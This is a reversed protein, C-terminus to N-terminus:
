PRALQLKLFPYPFDFAGGSVFASGRLENGVLNLPISIVHAGDESQSSVRGTMKGRLIYDTKIHLLRGLWGRNTELVCGSLEAGGFHGTVAGTSSITLDTEVYQPVGRAAAGEEQRLGFFRDNGHWQGALPTDALALTATALLVAASILLTTKM